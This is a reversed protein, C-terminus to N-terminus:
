QTFWQVNVISKSESLFFENLLFQFKSCNWFRFLNGNTRESSEKTGIWKAQMWGLSVYPDAVIRNWLIIFICLNIRTIQKWDQLWTSISENSALNMAQKTWCCFSIWLLSALIIGYSFVMTFFSLNRYKIQITLHLIWMIELKDFPFPTTQHEGYIKAYENETRLHTINLNM